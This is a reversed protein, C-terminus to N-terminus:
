SRQHRTIALGLGTGGFNRIISNDAQEFARFIRSVQESSVGIGTDEVEARCCNTAPNRSSCYGCPSRAGSTFKARQQHLQVGAQRLRLADGRLWVPM